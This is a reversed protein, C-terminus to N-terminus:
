QAALSRQTSVVQGGPLCNLAVVQEHSSSQPAPPTGQESAGQQRKLLPGPVHIGGPHQAASWM